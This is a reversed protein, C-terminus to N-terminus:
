PRREWLLASWRKSTLRLERFNQNPKDDNMLDKRTAAVVPAADTAHDLSV